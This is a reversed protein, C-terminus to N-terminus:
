SAHGLPRSPEPLRPGSDARISAPSTAAATANACRRGPTWSRRACGGATIRTTCTVTSCARGAPGLFEVVLVERGPFSPFPYPERVFRVGTIEDVRVDMIWNATDDGLEAHWWRRDAPGRFLPTTVGKLHATSLGDGFVFVLLGSGSLDAILRELGSAPESIEATTSTAHEEGSGTSNTTPLVTSRLISVRRGSSSWSPLSRNCQKHGADDWTIPAPM